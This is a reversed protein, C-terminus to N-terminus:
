YIILIFPIDANDGQADPNEDRESNFKQRDFTFFCSCQDIVARGYKNLVALDKLVIQLFFFKRVLLQQFLKTFFAYEFRGLNFKSDDLGTPFDIHQQLSLIM